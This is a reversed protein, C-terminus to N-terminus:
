ACATRHARAREARGSSEGEPAGGGELLGDKMEGIEWGRGAMAALGKGWFATFAITALGAVIARASSLFPCRLRSMDRILLVPLEPRALMWFLGRPFRNPPVMISTLVTCIGGKLGGVRRVM